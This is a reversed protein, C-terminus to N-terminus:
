ARRAGAAGPKRALVFGRVAERQAASMGVRGGGAGRAGAAAARGKARQRDKPEKRAKKAKGPKGTRREKALAGAQEERAKEVEEAGEAVPWEFKVRYVTRRRGPDKRDRRTPKDRKRGRAVEAPSYIRGIEALLEARTAFGDDVADAETLAELSPLVDVATIRLRGLGPAFSIQGPSVLQRAWIRITQRKNGARVLEVLHRKLLLMGGM